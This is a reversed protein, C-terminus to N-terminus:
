ISLKYGVVQNFRFCVVVHLTSNYKLLHHDKLQKRLVKNKINVKIIKRKKKVDNYSENEERM